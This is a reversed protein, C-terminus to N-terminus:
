GMSCSSRSHISESESRRKAPKYSDVGKILGITGISILDERDLKTPGLKNVVHAVLRLNHEILLRRSNLDGKAMLALCVREEEEPLPQPFNNYKVYSVLTMLEKMFWTATAILGPM